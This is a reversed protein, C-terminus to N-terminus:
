HWTTARYAPEVKEPAIAEGRAFAPVALTLVDSARPLATADFGRLRYRAARGACGRSRRFRYGGYVSLGEPLAVAAPACVREADRAVPLGDVREFRAVYLEGM